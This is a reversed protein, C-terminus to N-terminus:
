TIRLMTVNAAASRELRSNFKAEAPTPSTMSTEAPMVRVLVM